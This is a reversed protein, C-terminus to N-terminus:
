ARYTVSTHFEWMLVSKFSPFSNPAKTNTNTAALPWVLSTALLSPQGSLRRPRELVLLLWYSRVVHYNWAPFLPLGPIM